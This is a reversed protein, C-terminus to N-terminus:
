GRTCLRPHHFRLWLIPAHDGVHAGVPRIEDLGAMDMLALTAMGEETGIPDDVLDGHAVENGALRVEHAADKVHRYILGQEYLSDIRHRITGSTIDKAKACAEVV